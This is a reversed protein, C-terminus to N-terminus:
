MERALPSVASDKLSRIGYNVKQPVANFGQLWSAPIEEMEKVLPPSVASGKV